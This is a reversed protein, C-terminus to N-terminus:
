SEIGGHKAIIADVIETPVCSYVSATAKEGTREKYPALVKQPKSPFGVEWAVYAGDKLTDRPLCYHFRSAQVSMSFGDKCTIPRCSAMLHPNSRLKTFRVNKLWYARITSM